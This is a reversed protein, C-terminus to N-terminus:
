YNGDGRRVTVIAEMLLDHDNKVEGSNNKIILKANNVKTMIEETWTNEDVGKYKNLLKNAKELLAVRKIQAERLEKLKESIKRHLSENNQTANDNDEFDNTYDTVIPLPAPRPKNIIPEGPVFDLGEYGTAPHTIRGNIKVGDVVFDESQIESM